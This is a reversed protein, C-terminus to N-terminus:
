LKMLVSLLETTIIAPLKKAPLIESFLFMFNERIREQFINLGKYVEQSYGKDLLRQFAAGQVALRGEKTSLRRM